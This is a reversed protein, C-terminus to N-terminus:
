MTVPCANQPLMTSVFPKSGRDLHANPEFTSLSEAEVVEAVAERRKKDAFAFIYLRNLPQKAM